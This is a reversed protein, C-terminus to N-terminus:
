WLEPRAIMLWLLVLIATFAPIGCVFWLRYLTTYRPPLPRAWKVAERALDRMQIQLWIVPLWFAGVVVYLGISVLLWGESLRWGM